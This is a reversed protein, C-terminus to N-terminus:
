SNQSITKPIFFILSKWFSEFFKKGFFFGFIPKRIDSPLLKLADLGNDM